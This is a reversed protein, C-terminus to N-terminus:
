QWSSVLEANKTGIKHNRPLGAVNVFMIFIDRPHVQIFDIFVVASHKKRRPIKTM